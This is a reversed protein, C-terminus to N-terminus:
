QFGGFHGGCTGLADFYIWIGVILHCIWVRRVSWSSSPMAMQFAM